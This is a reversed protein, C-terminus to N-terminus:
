EQMWALIAELVAGGLALAKDSITFCHQADARPDLDGIKLGRTLAVKPHILGRLVGDFPACIAHEGVFGILDGARLQDGIRAAPQLFGEAPARLVRSAGRGQVEGPMGTDPQPSGCYLIRGLWHGRQTEVAAHCDVRATFGPGLGIVLPAADIRTGTNRKAIIADVLVAPQLPTAAQLLPDVLVPIPQGQGALRRAEGAEAVCRATLGEVNTEGDYVAQGFSVTRRVMTPTLTETMVVPFGARQLRYAVGSALDGAGRILVLTKPFLV